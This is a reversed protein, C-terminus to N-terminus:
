EWFRWLAGYRSNSFSYLPPNPNYNSLFDDGKGSLSIFLITYNVKGSIFEFLPTNDNNYLLEKM